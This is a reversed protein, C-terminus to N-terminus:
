VGEPEESIAYDCLVGHDFGVSDLFAYFMAYCSGLLLSDWSARALRLQGLLFHLLDSDKASLLHVLETPSLQTQLQRLLEQCRPTPPLLLLLRIFTCIFKRQLQCQDIQHLSTLQVSPRKGIMILLVTALEILAQRDVLWATSKSCTSLLQVSALCLLQRSTLM